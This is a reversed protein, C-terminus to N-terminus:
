MITCNCKSELKPPKTSDVKNPVGVNHIMSEDANEDNETKSSPAKVNTEVRRQRAKLSKATRKSITRGRPDKRDGSSKGLITVTPRSDELPEENEKEMAITAAQYALDHVISSCFLIADTAEELTLSRGKSGGRCELLVTSEELIGHRQDSGNPESIATIDKDSDQIENMTSRSKPSVDGIETGPPRQCNNEIVIETITALSSHAPVEAVDVGDRGSNVMSHEEEYSSEPSIVSEVDLVSRANKPIDVGNEYSIRDEHSPFSSVSNQESLVSATHSSIESTSVDLIRSSENCGFIGEEFVAGGIFSADIIGGKNESALVKSQSPIHSGDVDDNKMDTVSVEFNENTSRALGSAQITHNSSGSLSSAISQPKASVDNRYNEMDSKRGSLQRQVRTETQRSSSFDVSSSASASGHGISSRLSNSSDRTYSLDEYPISTATFTRGQFVPGKSSSSRKLLLSIGAGESTDVKTDLHDNSHQLQRSGNGKDPLNYGVTPQDMEKQYNLRQEGGEVVSRALSNERSYRQSQEVNDEHESVRPEVMNFVQPVSEPVVVPPESEDFREESINISLLPSDEAVVLTTETNTLNVINNQKRCDPCLDIDGEVLETVRYRLSCKSCLRMTEFNSVESCDGVVSLADSTPIVEIDPNLGDLQLNSSRDHREHKVDEDLAFMEEQVDPYLVKGSDSTMDDHQHDSGETDPAVSTGQDSSANSSTTLSSNRSIMTRHVSNGKGAYFTTSPVSSLLPRFMNQPTKRLDMQRLASDFSRKPASSSSLMKPSKKSFGPARNNPSSGVRKSVSFDLGSIPISHLSDVDDDGSSAVSAKSHSSFRDRDHSHSSSVSRSTTPSMSQRGYKPTSDRGNRSAPSSGRVYSAPRDALSTRLNPPAELSFGPINSQWARIKPSSSNGRSTRIPSTGRVSSSNATSRSGASMRRPTPTSSRPAPTPTSSRPAPTSPKSPPPSPRRTPTAPQLAPNPSTQPASSPRGRTSQFSSNGSRPSPSLRNPSASGRSSRYSKEMTSSRSISIPQSRPRGRRAVNAPTPEDDLSPFLPTDPPTLLWDYDNKEADANLLESSEGRVPILVGLKFDSFNKLKSSFTDEFDDSSQLLFSEKEKTQM